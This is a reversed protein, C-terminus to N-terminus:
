RQEFTIAQITSTDINEMNDDVGGDPDVPCVTIHTLKEWDVCATLTESEWVWMFGDLCEVERDKMHLYMGWDWDGTHRTWGTDIVAKHLLRLEDLKIAREQANSSLGHTGHLLEALKYDIRTADPAANIPEM